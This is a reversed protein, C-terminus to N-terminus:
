PKQLVLVDTGRAIRVSERDITLVRWGDVVSGRAIPTFDGDPTRLIARRSDDTGFVGILTIRELDIQDENVAATTVTPTAPTSENQEQVRAIEEAAARARIAQGFGTPRPRPRLIDDEDEATLDVPGPPEPLAEAVASDTISVATDPRPAPRLISGDQGAVVPAGSGSGQRVLGSVGLSSPRPQPRVSTLVPEGEQAVLIHPLDPLSRDLYGDTVQTTLDHPRDAAATVPTHPSPLAQAAGAATLAALALAAVRHRAIPRVPM